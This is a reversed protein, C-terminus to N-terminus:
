AKTEPHYRTAVSEADEGASELARMALRLEAAVASRDNVEPLGEESGRAIMQAHQRLVDRDGRRRAFAAVMTIIHLLRATVTASSRAYARIDNFAVDAIARFTTAPAVVRLIGQEDQRYPSPFERQVLRCSASGLRDICSVATFPDNVGPSLARVAVEVLQRVAFEIDQVPSRQEGLAFVANIRTAIREDLKNGPSIKALPSGAVVYDGPRCLVLVVFDEEVALEMLADADILQLYGDSASKVPRADLDLRELAVADPAESPGSAPAGIQEPFLDDIGDLLETSVRAVVQDAQISVSVHHIFYILVGLSAVAFLLGLTVSLHPVFVDGETFRLTRLVLLCYLFTAVFTGLVFQNTTDSMFNRLLRPGFQSSALTLAVLTLSFVVGAVTIMSGAITELVSSAGEAGGAYVWEVSRLWREELTRDLAVTAFSLAVAGAAMTAPLFWFSTRIRDWYKLLGVKM